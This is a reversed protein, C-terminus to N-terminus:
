YAERHLRRIEKDERFKKLLFNIEKAVANKLDLPHIRGSSYDSELEEYRDFHANGGFKQSREIVFQEGKNGKIVFIVYKLFTMIGNDPNGAICEAGRIKSDVENESDLLDIKSKLESASMKKGILGPLLPTM